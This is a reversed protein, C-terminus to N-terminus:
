QFALLKLTYFTRPAISTWDNNQLTSYLWYFSVVALKKSQTNECVNGNGIFAPFYNNGKKCSLNIGAGAQCGNAGDSQNHIRLTSM